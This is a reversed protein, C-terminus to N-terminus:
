KVLVPSSGFSKEHFSPGSISGDCFTKTNYHPVYLIKGGNREVMRGVYRSYSGCGQIFLSASSMFIFDQDPSGCNIRTFVRFGNQELFRQLLGVYEFSLDTKRIYMEKSDRRENSHYSSGIIVIDTIDYSKLKNIM